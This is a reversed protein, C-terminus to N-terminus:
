KELYSFHIVCKLPIQLSTGHRLPYHQEWFAHTVITAQILLAGM